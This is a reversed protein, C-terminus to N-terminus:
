TPLEAIPRVECSALRSVLFRRKLGAMIRAGVKGRVQRPDVAIRAAPGLEARVLDGYRWAPNWAGPALTLAARVLRPGLSASEDPLIHETAGSTSCGSRAMPRSGSSM